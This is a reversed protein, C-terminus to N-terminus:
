IGMDNIETMKHDYAIKEKWPYIHARWLCELNIPMWKITMIKNNNNNWTNVTQLVLVDFLCFGVIVFSNQSRWVCKCSDDCNFYRRGIHQRTFLAFCILAVFFYEYQDTHFLHFLIEMHLHYSPKLANMRQMKIINKNRENSQNFYDMDILLWYVALMMAPVNRRWLDSLWLSHASKENPM